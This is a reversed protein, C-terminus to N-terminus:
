KNINIMVTEQDLEPAEKQILTKLGEPLLAEPQFHANENARVPNGKFRARNDGTDRHLDCDFRILFSRDGFPFPIHSLGWSIGRGDGNDAFADPCYPGGAQPPFQVISKMEFNLGDPAYQVTNKEPGDKILIAAIGEKYPYLCTEHGSNTVPNLHSKIYPGEPSDAIAV